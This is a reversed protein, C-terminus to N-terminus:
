IGWVKGCATCVAGIVPDDYWGHTKDWKHFSFLCKISM